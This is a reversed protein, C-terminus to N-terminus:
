TERAAMGGCWHLLQAIWAPVEDSQFSLLESKQEDSLEYQRDLLKAALVFAAALFDVDRRLDVELMAPGCHGCTPCPEPPRPPLRDLLGQAEPWHDAGEASITVGAPRFDPVIRIGRRPVAFDVGHLTLKACRDPHRVGAGVPRRAAVEMARYQEAAPAHM